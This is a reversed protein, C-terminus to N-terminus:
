KIERAYRLMNKHCMSHMSTQTHIRKGGHDHTIKAVALIIQKGIQPSAGIARTFVQKDDQDSM